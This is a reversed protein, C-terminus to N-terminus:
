GNSEKKVSFFLQALICWSTGILEDKFVRELSVLIEISKPFRPKVCAGELHAKFHFIAVVAAYRIGIVSEILM